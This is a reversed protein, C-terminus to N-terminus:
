RAPPTLARKKNIQKRYLTVERIDDTAIERQFPKVRLMFMRSGSNQLVQLQALPWSM